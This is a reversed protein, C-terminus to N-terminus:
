DPFVLDFERVAADLGMRRATRTNYAALVERLPQMARTPAVGEIIRAAEAALRRGLAVNDPYLAFLVGRQVHPVSSSFVVIGQEWSAQLVLPLITSDNATIRDQPLWLADERADADDFFDRYHEAAEKIDSAELAVLELGQKEAAERAIAILWNNQRPEFVVVVRRIHPAISKLRSFLLAPDPALSILTGRLAHDEPASVIGGAVVGIDRNLTNAARLGNRGLAIVVRAERRKLEDSLAQPNFSDGVAHRMVRGRAESEIGEIISSFVSRYPEGIDPYLVAIVEGGGAARSSTEAQARAAGAFALVLMLLLLRFLLMPSAGHGASARSPTARAGSRAPDRYPVLVLRPRTVTM